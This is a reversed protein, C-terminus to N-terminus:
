KKNKLTMFIPCLRFISLYFNRIFNLNLIIKFLQEELQLITQIMERAKKDFIPTTILGFDAVGVGEFHSLKVEFSIMHFSQAALIFTCTREQSDGLVVNSANKFCPRRLGCNPLYRRQNRQNDM